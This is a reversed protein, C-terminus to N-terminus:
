KALYDRFYGCEEIVQQYYETGSYQRELMEFYKESDGELGAYSANQGCKAAMFCCQAAFERNRTLKRAETYLKEARSCDYFDFTYWGNDGYRSESQNQDIGGHNRNYDVAMWSNGFYTMNYYANALLFKYKAKKETSTEKRALEEYHLLKEALSRKTYVIKKDAEFDCDHCDNIHILFPDAPLTTELNTKNFCEIAQKLRHKNLLITGLLEYLSNLEFSSEEMLFKEIDSKAPREIFSILNEVVQQSNDDLRYDSLNGPYCLTAKVTEEGGADELYKKRLSHKLQTLAYESRLYDKNSKLWQMDKLIDEEFSATIKPAEAIKVLSGIVRAEDRFMADSPNKKVSLDLYKRAGAIDNKMYSIYAAAFYWFYPRQVNSNAAADAAFQILSDKIDGEPQDAYYYATNKYEGAKIERAMLVDLMPSSPDLAFIEKMRALAGETSELANLFLLTAKEHNNRCRSMADNFSEEVSYWHSRLATLRRSPCNDFVLSHLYVAEGEKGLGKLAGAKQSLAWYKMMSTAKFKKDGILEDYLHVCQELDGKYRAMRVAQFAYRIKLMPDKVEGYKKKGEGILDSMAKEDVPPTTWEDGTYAFSACRKAYDLYAAFAKDKRAYVRQVATNKKWPDQRMDTGNELDTRFLAADELSAEYILSRLDERSVKKKFYGYWEDLNDETEAKRLSEGGKYFKEEYTLFFPEYLREKLFDPSFIFHYDDETYYNGPGCGVSLRAPWFVLLLSVSFLFSRKLYLRIM